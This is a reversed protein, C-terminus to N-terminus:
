IQNLLFNDPLLSETEIKFNDIIEKSIVNPDVYWDEYPFGINSEVDGVLLVYGLDNFYKRSESRVRIKEELPTNTDYWDTEYTIVSFRYKDMPLKKLCDFTQTLPEIDLQLYDIQTPLNHSMLINEYDIELANSLVFQCRRSSFSNRVNPDIDVSIGNWGFQELLYTNSIFTPHYAGIELYTGNRKGNLMSLVFMDQYSQSYNTEINEIGDFKYKYRELKSKNYLIM